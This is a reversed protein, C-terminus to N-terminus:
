AAHHRATPRLDSHHEDALPALDANADGGGLLRGRPYRQTPSSGGGGTRIRDLLMVLGLGAVVLLHSLVRMLDVRGEALDISSLLTLVAVFAALMPVLGASRSSRLAVWVFGVGIALNWAAAEHSMHTLTAGGLAVLV